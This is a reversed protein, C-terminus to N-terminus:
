NTYATTLWGDIFYYIIEQNAIEDGNFGLGSTINKADTMKITNAEYEEHNTGGVWYFSVTKNELNTNKLFNQIKKSPVNGEFVPSGILIIDYKDIETAQDINSVMCNLQQNIYATINNLSQNSDDYLVLINKDEKYTYTKYVCEEVIVPETVYKKVITNSGTLFYINFMAYFSLSLM